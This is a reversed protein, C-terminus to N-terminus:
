PQTSQRKGARNGCALRDGTRSREADWGRDRGIAEDHHSGINARLNLLELSTLGIVDGNIVDDQVNFDRRM